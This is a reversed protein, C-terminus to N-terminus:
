PTITTILQTDNNTTSIFAWVPASSEIKVDVPDVGVPFATWQAYAPSFQDNTAQLRVTFPAADGIKVVVTESGTGYIRLTNRYLPDTPVGLLLLRTDFETERVIPLQTGRSEAGRSTDYVHLSTSFDGVYEDKVYFYRGPSGDYGTYVFQRPQYGGHTAHGLELPDDSNHSITYVGHLQIALADEARARFDTVFESGFAGQIPPLFVPLLFREMAEPTEGVFTYTVGTPRYIDYEFIRIDVTGPLHEPAVAVLTDPATRETSVAGVNGFVVWYPWDGLSNCRLTVTTGGSTPGSAPDISCHEEEPGAFLPLALVLTALLIMRKM